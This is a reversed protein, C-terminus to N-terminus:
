LPIIIEFNFESNDPIDKIIGTVVFDKTITKRERRGEIAYNQPITIVQGIASQNPFLKSAMQESLVISTLENFATNSEGEIFELELTSFINQEAIWVFEKSTEAGITLIPNFQMMRSSHEIEPFRRDIADKAIGPACACIFHEGNKYFNTYNLRYVRDANTMWSDYSSEYRVFLFILLCAAMGVALGVINIMSYLRHKLIHRFAVLIYNKFM